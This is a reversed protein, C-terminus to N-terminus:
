PRRTREPRAQMSPSVLLWVRGRIMDLRAEIALYDDTLLRAANMQRATVSSASFTGGDQWPDRGEIMVVADEFAACRDLRAIDPSERLAIHCRRSHEALADNNGRAILTRADRVAAEIAETRLPEELFSAAAVSLGTGRGIDPQTLAQSIDDMTRASIDALQNRQLMAVALLAFILLPWWSRQRVVPRRSGRMAARREYIAQALDDGAPKDWDPPPRNRLEFYARNIEAARTADGGKRDPHYRKILKKYAADIAVQDAGPAIGLTAFPSATSSM